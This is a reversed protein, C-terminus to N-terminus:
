NYFSFVLWKLAYIAIQMPPLSLQAVALESIPGCRLHYSNRRTHCHLAECSRREAEPPMWRAQSSPRLVKFSLHSNVVSEVAAGGRSAAALGDRTAEGDRQERGGDATRRGRTQADQLSGRPAASLASM